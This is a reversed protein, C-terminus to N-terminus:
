TPWSYALRFGVALLREGPALAFRGAARCFDPMASWAGGRVSRLSADSAEPAERVLRGSSLPPGDWQWINECWDRVNGTMGRVGYPSEDEPFARVDMPRPTGDHSGLMCARTPEVHDGFSVVRGDVARAAKEWELENLLRFPRCTRAAYWEAYAVASHWDVLAVPGDLEWPTAASPAKLVFEGSDRQEYALPEELAGVGGLGGSGRPLRPAHRLAAREDGRAVCDNLFALYSRNDVPHRQVVFGDLWVRREPLTEVARDDGGSAFWGAPVYTM